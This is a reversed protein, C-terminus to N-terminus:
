GKTVAVVMAIRTAMVSTVAVVMAIRTANVIRMGDKIAATRVAMGM